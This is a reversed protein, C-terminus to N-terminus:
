GQLGFPLYKPIYLGFCDKNREYYFGDRKIEHDKTDISKFFRYNNIMCIQREKLNNIEQCKKNQDKYKQLEKNMNNYHHYLLNQDIRAEISINIKDM